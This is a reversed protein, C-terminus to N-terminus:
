MRGNGKGKLCSDYSTYGGGDYFGPVSITDNENVFKGSLKVDTFPNGSTPGDFTFEIMKWKEINVQGVLSCNCLLLVFLCNKIRITHM